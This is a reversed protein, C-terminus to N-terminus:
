KDGSASRIMGITLSLICGLSVFVQWRRSWMGEERVLWGFSGLPWLFGITMARLLVDLLGSIGGFADTDAAGGGGFDGSGDDGGGTGSGADFGANNNNDIWVDEMRRLSDPSPMTDPTYRAAHISRFQLRLQNIEAMTFGATLLRDFGRPARSGPVDAVRGAATQRLGAGAGTPGANDKSGSDTSSGGSSTSPLGSAPREALRKEVALETESLVDGISCNVYVRQPAPQGEVAKGKGKDEGTPDDASIKGNGHSGPGSVATPPPPPARLVDSLVAADPLIKGGHIFRLRRAQNHPDLRGRILHKLAIVTTSGPRPIDLQLDPVAASFRVTLLLARPPIPLITAPQRIASPSTRPPPAPKTPAANSSSSGSSM